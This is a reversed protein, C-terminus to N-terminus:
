GRLISENLHRTIADAMEMAEYFHNARAEDLAPSFLSGLTLFTGHRTVAALSAEYSYEFTYPDCRAAQAEPLGARALKRRVAYKRRYSKESPLENKGMRAFAAEQLRAYFGAAAYVFREDWRGKLLPLARADMALQALRDHLSPALTAARAVDVLEETRKGPECLILLGRFVLTDQEGDRLYFATDCLRIRVGNMEGAAGEEPDFLLPAAFLGTRRLDAASIGGGPLPPLFTGFLNLLRGYVAREISLVGQGRYSM